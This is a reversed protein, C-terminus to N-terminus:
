VETPLFVKIFRLDRGEAPEGPKVQAVRAAVIREDQIHQAVLLRDIKM